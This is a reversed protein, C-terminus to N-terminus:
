NINTSNIIKYKEDKLESIKPRNELNINKEKLLYKRGFCIFIKM